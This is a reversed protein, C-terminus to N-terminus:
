DGFDGCIIQLCIQTHINIFLNSTQKLFFFNFNSTYFSFGVQWQWEGAEITHKSVGRAQLLRLMNKNFTHFYTRSPFFFGM